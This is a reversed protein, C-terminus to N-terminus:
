GQTLMTEPYTTEASTAETNSPAKSTLQRSQLRESKEFGPKLLRSPWGTEEQSERGM